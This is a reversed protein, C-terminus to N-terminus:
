SAGGIEFDLSSADLGYGLRKAFLKALGITAFHTMGGPTSLVEGAKYGTTAELAYRPSGDGFQGRRRVAAFKPARLIATREARTKDAYAIERENFRAVAASRDPGFARKCEDCDAAGCDYAPSM